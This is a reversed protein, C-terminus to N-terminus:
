ASGAYVSGVSSLASGSLLQNEGTGVMFYSYGSVLDSGDMFEMVAALFKAAQEQSASGPNLGFETVFVKKGTQEAAKKVQAEFRGVTGAEGEGEQYIDYFHINAAHWVAQPCVNQFKQLWQLGMNEDNGANTVSPGLITVSPHSSAIPNMYSEWNTCAVDPSMNAQSSHDPENFGMVADSGSAVAEDVLGLWTKADENKTWAMPVYKIGEPLDGGASSAWNYAWSAQGSFASCLTADNYALGRKGGSYVPSGTSSPTASSAVVTSSAEAVTSSPAATSSYVEEPTPSPTEAPKTYSEVKSTVEAVSSSSSPLVFTVSEPVEYGGSPAVVTTTGEAASSSSSSSAGGYPVTITVKESATVTVTAPGCGAAGSTLDAVGVSSPAPSGSIYITSVLTTTSTLYEDLTTTKKDDVGAGSATPYPHTGNNKGTPYLPRGTGPGGYGGSGSPKHHFRSHSYHPVAAATSILALLSLKM